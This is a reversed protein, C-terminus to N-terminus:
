RLLMTDLILEDHDVLGGVGEADLGVAGEGFGDM